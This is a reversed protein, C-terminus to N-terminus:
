AAKSGQSSSATTSGTMWSVAQDISDTKPDLETVVTGLRLVVIRDAVEFV